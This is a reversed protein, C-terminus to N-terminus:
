IECVKRVFFGLISWWSTNLRSCLPIQPLYIILSTHCTCETDLINFVNIKCSLVVSFNNIFRFFHGIFLCISYKNKLNLPSTLDFNRNKKTAYRDSDAVSGLVFFIYYQGKLDIINKSTFYAELKIKLALIFKSTKVSRVHWTFIGLFNEFTRLM